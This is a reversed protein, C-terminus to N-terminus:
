KQQARKREENLRFEGPSQHAAAKFARGFYKASTYGCARAIQDLSDETETLMRRAHEMRTDTLFRNMTVGVTKKFLPCMHSTSYGVYDCITALDLHPDTYHHRIYAITLRVVREVHASDHAPDNQAMAARSFRSVADLIKQQAETM